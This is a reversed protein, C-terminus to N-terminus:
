SQRLVHGLTDDGITRILDFALQDGLVNHGFSSEIQKLFSNGDSLLACDCNTFLSALRTLRSAEKIERDRETGAAPMM